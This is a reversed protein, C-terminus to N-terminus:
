ESLNQLEKLVKKMEQLTYIIRVKDPLQLKQNTVQAGFTFISLNPIRLLLETLYSKIFKEPVSTIFATVYIKAKSENLIDILCDMPTSQGLYITQFGYKRALYHAMLLSIEHMEKEHLAFVITPANPSYSTVIKDITSLLKQKMISSAFHERAPTIVGTLWLFGVKEMFPFLINEMTFEFGNKVISKEMIQNFNKEDLKIMASILQDVQLSIDNLGKSIEAVKKSLDEDSLNAVDSIREGSRILLTINLLRKLQDDDYYRINTQTRKPMLCQYRKEWIRITHSKIGTIEELDKISYQSM